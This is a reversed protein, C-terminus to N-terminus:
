LECRSKVTFIWSTILNLFDNNNKEELERTKKRKYALKILDNSMIAKSFKKNVHMHKNAVLKTSASSSIPDGRLIACHLACQIIFTLLENKSKNIFFVLKVLTTIM